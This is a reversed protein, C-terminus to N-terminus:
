KLDGWTNAIDRSAGIPVELRMANMMIQRGRDCFEEAIDEELEFILEDHIQLLALCLKGKREYWGVVPTIEAMALKIVEQALAQLGHNGAQRLAENVVGRITSYVGPVLRWRGCLDWVKGWRRARAHQECTWEFVKSYFQYWAKIFTACDEESWFPGGVALIQQQLGRPTVGYLIGFGLQKAVIRYKQKFVKWHIPWVGTPHVADLYKEPDPQVDAANLRFLGVATFTHIDKGELFVSMMNPDRSCHAAAVMEIQALDMSALVTKKGPRQQATFCRRIAPAWESRIPVNQLNPDSSSLRGTAARTVNFSTHIRRTYPNVCHPLKLTYTNRLKDVERWDLVLDALPDLGRLQSLSEDDTSLRKGGPTTSITSRGGNREALRRDLHLEDYLLRAVQDGSCPNLPRGALCDVSEQLGALETALEADLTALAATDLYIGNHHMKAILPLAGMDLRLVNRPSPRDLPFHVGGYLRQISGLM